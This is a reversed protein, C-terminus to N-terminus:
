KKFKIELYFNLLCLYFIIEFYSEYNVSILIPTFSKSSVWGNEFYIKM